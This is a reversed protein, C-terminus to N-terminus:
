KKAKCMACSGAAKGCKACKGAKGKVAGGGAMNRPQPTTTPKPKGNVADDVIQDYQKDRERGNVSLPGVRSPGAAPAAPRPTPRPARSAVQAGRQNKAAALARDGVAVRARGDSVPRGNLMASDRGMPADFGVRVNNKPRTGKPM